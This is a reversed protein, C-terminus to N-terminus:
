ENNSQNFKVHYNLLVIRNNIYYFLTQLIDYNKIFFYKDNYLKRLLKNLRLFRIFQYVNHIINMKFIAFPM